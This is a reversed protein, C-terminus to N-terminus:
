APQDQRQSWTVLGYVGFGLTAIFCGMFLFTTAFLVLFPALFHCEGLHFSRPGELGDVVVRYRGPSPFTVEAISVRRTNGSEVRSGSDSRLPITEGDPVGYVAVTLGPPLEEPFTKLKGDIVASTQNWITYEGARQINVETDGPVSISIGTNSFLSVFALVVVIICAAGALASLLAWKFHLLLRIM